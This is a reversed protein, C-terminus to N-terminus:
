KKDGLNKEMVIIDAIYSPTKPKREGTESFGMKRWFPFAETNTEIVGLRVTDIGPWSAMIKELEAYVQTGHGQGQYKEAILLLGLMVKNASRFGRFMGACGILEDGLYFGFIFQDARPFDPPLEVFENEAENPAAPNGSIALYYDPTANFLNQLAARNQASDKLQRIIM